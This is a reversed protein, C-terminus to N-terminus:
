LYHVTTRHQVTLIRQMGARSLAAHLSHQLRRIFRGGSNSSGKAGWASAALQGQQAQEAEM